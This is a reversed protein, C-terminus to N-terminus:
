NDKVCRVSYCYTKYTDTSQMEQSNYHIRYRYAYNDNYQTATWWCAINGFDNYSNNYWFGAPMGSFGTADNTSQSYGTCCTSNANAWGNNSALSKSIYTSGNDCRYAPQSSVYTILQDWESKSPVHWGTPCIGQVYSPNASSSNAGHMVASWNYLLGYNAVTAQTNHPYLYAISDGNAYHIAKLNEKMWCQQGIQVTNYENGDYDTLTPVGECPRGGTTFVVNDGYGTGVANTAYARVYYTTNAVLGSMTSAFSGVGNGNSTHSSDITPDETTSWCLGRVTVVTGGDSSINGGSTASIASVNTVPKTTVVPITLESANALDEDRLCRVSLGRTKSFYSNDVTSWNNYIGRYYANDGNYQTTTWYRAQTNVGTYSGEWYGSPIATFRTDNNTSMSWGVNCTSNNTEWTTKAALATAVYTNNNNCMYSAQNSVFNLMITWENNSPLHWGNPCIGQVGSPTNNNSSANNMAAYWNYLLGRQPVQAAINNNLYYAPVTQNSNAAPIANGDPFHTVRLNQRMWCQTGILVADYYNGDYDVAYGCNIPANRTITNNILSGDEGAVGVGNDARCETVVSNLLVGNNRIYVGGGKARYDDDDIADCEKVVCYRVTGGDILLGGGITSSFGNRVVCGDLLGFVTAIRHTGAGSIITCWTNDTWHSNVGPLRRQTTDTGASSQQYGGKVAVGAPVTFQSSISYSGAKVYVTGGTSDAAAIGAAITKKATEWRLGDGSDDAASFSVFVTSQAGVSLTICLMVLLSFSRCHRHKSIKTFFIHKNM